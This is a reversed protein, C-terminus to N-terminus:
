VLLVEEDPAIPKDYDTFEAVHIECDGDDDDRASELFVIVRAEIEKMASEAKSAVPLLQPLDGVEGAFSEEVFSRSFAQGLEDCVRVLRATNARFHGPSQWWFDVEDKGSNV